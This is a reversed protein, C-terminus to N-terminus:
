VNRLGAFKKRWSGYRVFVAGGSYSKEIDSIILEFYKDKQDKGTNKIYEEIVKKLAIIENLFKDANCLSIANSINNVAKVVKDEPIKEYKRLQKYRRYYTYFMDGRGYQLFANLAVALDTMLYAETCDIIKYAGSEMDRNFDIANVGALKYRRSQLMNMVTGITQVNTRSGGHANLYLDIKAENGDAAEDIITIIKEVAEAIERDDEGFGVKVFLQAPNDHLYLEPHAFRNKGSLSLDRGIEKEIMEEYEFCTDTNKIFGLM